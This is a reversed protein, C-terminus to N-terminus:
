AHSVVLYYNTGDTRVCRRLIDLKFDKNDGCEIVADGEVGEKLYLCADDFYASNGKNEMGFAVQIFTPAGLDLSTANVTMKYNVWGSTQPLDIEIFGVPGSTWLGDANLGYSKIGDYFFLGFWAGDVNCNYWFDLTYISLTAPLDDYTYIYGDTVKASYVGGHVVVAEKDVSDPTPDVAYEDPYGPNDNDWL